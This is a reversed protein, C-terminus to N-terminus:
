IQLVLNKQHLHYGMVTNVVLENKGSGNKLKHKFEIMTKEKTKEDIILLDIEDHAKGSKTIPYEPIFCFDNKFLEHAKFIFEMQFQAESVFWYGNAKLADMVKEVKNQDFM